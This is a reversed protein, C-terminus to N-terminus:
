LAGYVSSDYGADGGRHRFARAARGLVAPRLRFRLDRPRTLIRLAMGPHDTRTRRARPGLQISGSGRSFLAYRGSGVASSRACGYSNRSVHIGVRFLHDRLGVTDEVHPGALKFITSGSRSFDGGSPRESGSRKRNERKAKTNEAARGGDKANACRRSIRWMIDETGPTCHSLTTWRCRSTM